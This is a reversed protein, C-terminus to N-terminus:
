IIAVQLSVPLKKFDEKTQVTLSIVCSTKSYPKVHGKKDSFNLKLKKKQYIEQDFCWCFSFAFKGCNSLTLIIKTPIKPVSQFIFTSVLFM